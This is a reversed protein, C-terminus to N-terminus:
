LCSAKTLMVQFNTEIHKVGAHSISSVFHFVLTFDKSMEYTPGKGEDNAIKLDVNFKALRKDKEDLQCIYESSPEYHGDNHVVNFDTRWQQEVSVMVKSYEPLHDGIVEIPFQFSNETITSELKRPAGAKLRIQCEEELNATIIISRDTIYDGIIKLSMGEEDTYTEYQDPELKNDGIYIDISSLSMVDKQVVTIFTSFDENLYADRNSLEIDQDNYHVQIHDAKHSQEIGWTILPAGVIIATSAVPVITTILKYKSIM